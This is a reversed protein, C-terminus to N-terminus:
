SLKARTERTLPHGEGLLALVGEIVTRLFPQGGNDGMSLAALLHNLAQDPQRQALARVAKQYLDDVADNGTLGDGDEVDCMFEALPRLVQAQAAEPSAPFDQLLALAPFGNGKKLHHVAQQLRKAADESGRFGQVPAPASLADNVFQRIAVDPIAGVFESVVRGNRFMKVAPISRIQYKAATHQNHETDLKALVWITDPMEAMRELRPGLQRCPSCWAAWFDVLVPEKYSRKIVQVDFTADTVDIIGARLTKSAEVQKNKGFPFWKM